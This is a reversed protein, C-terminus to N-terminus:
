KVVKEHNLKILWLKVLKTYHLLFKGFISSWTDCVSLHCLLLISYPSQLSLLLTQLIVWSKDCVIACKVPGENISLSLLWGLLFHETRAYAQTFEM